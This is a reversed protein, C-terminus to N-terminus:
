RPRAIQPAQHSTVIVSARECDDTLADGRLASAVFRGDALPAVCGADDCSVGDALVGDDVQRADADAALWEKLLFKDKGSRMVTAM